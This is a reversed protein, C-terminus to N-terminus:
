QASTCQQRPSRRYRQQVREAAKRLHSAHRAFSMRMRLTRLMRSLEAAPLLLVVMDNAAGAASRAASSRPPSAAAVAADRAGSRMTPLTASVATGRGATVSTGHDSASHCPLWLTSAPSSTM